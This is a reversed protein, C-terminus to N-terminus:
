CPPRGVQLLNLCYHYKTESVIKNFIDTLNDDTHVKQIDVISQAIIDRIFHFRISIHKTRACFVQNKTLQIVSQSDCQIIIKMERNNLEELLDNMWIDEKVTNISAM